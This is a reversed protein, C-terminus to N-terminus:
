YYYDREVVADTMVQVTVSDRHEVTCQRSSFDSLSNRSALADVSVGAELGTVIAM